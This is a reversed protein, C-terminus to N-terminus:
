FMTEPGIPIIRYPNIKDHSYHYHRVIHEFNTTSKIANMSYLKATYRSLNQYDKIRKRNCKFHGHYVPDFRLLTTVLRIDAETFTNGVLYDNGELMEEIRDLSEFLKSVNEDYASQTKAFGSKYVGNNINHYVLENVEDIKSRLAEPYFDLQNGTLENFATNFIRIIESSENNVITKNEKDWLVPVTVSTTVKPDALVYVERMFNKNFLKDGTTAAFDTEFTWGEDLMDPSVVSVGIFSNLDKLERMILTRHAWPCAYSVYLHYRDKEPKFKSHGPSITDLFSRPIRDYGGEKNTTAVDAKEWKGDILKGM